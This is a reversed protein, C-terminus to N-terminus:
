DGKPVIVDVSAFMKGDEVRFKQFEVLKRAIERALLDVILARMKFQDYDYPLVEVVTLTKIRNDPINM